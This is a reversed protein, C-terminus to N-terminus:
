VPLGLAVKGILELAEFQSFPQMLPGARVDRYLRSLPNASLFGAGGSLSMAHDVIEIAKRTVFHKTGQFEATVHRLADDPVSLPHAEFLRDAISASRELAARAAALSVEMEAVLHQIAPRDGRGRSGIQQLVLARAAEAIGLFVAVLGMVGSISVGMYYPTLEGWKGGDMIAGDPIFCNELVVDHSGSGRMGLADWNDLMTVGPSDRAITAGGIRWAGTDSRFRFRVAFHTAVPSGTAFAQSGSLYWGEDGRVAGTTPNLVFNGNETALVAVIRQGSAIERLIAALAQERHTDGVIRAARWARATMWASWLHMNTAIATSGDGRGLRNMGAAHDRLAVVGLGGFEEPVTASMVGSHILDTTNEEPFRGERDYKDARASLTAEHAECRSVLTAGADSVPQLSFDM